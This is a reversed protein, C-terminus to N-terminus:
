QAAAGVARAVGGLKRGREAPELTRDHLDGLQQRGNRVGQRGFIHRLQLLQLALRRRHAPGEDLPAHGGLETCIPLLFESFELM